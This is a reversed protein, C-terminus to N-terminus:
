ESVAQENNAELKKAKQERRKRRHEKIMDIVSSVAEAITFTVGIIVLVFFSMVIITDAMQSLTVTNEM